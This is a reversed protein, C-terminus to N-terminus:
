GSAFRWLGCCAFSGRIASSASAAAMKGGADRTTAAALFQDGTALCFSAKAIRGSSEAKEVIGDVLARYLRPVGIVITVGGENLARVMQPGTLSFPLVISLGRALPTLLGVVLPYVHHLPLPLLLCDGDNVLDANLLVDLQIAINRHTLPVGKPPGTTGSTYFLVAEDEPSTEPLQTPTDAL